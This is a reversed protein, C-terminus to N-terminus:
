EKQSFRNASTNKVFPNTRFKPTGQRNTKYWPSAHKSNFPQTTKDEDGFHYEKDMGEGEEDKDYMRISEEAEWEDEEEEGEEDEYVEEEENNYAYNSDWNDEDYDEKDIGGYGTKEIETEEGEDEEKRAELKHNESFWDYSSRNAAFKAVEAASDEDLIYKRDKDKSREKLREREKKIKEAGEEKKKQEEAERRKIGLAELEDQTLPRWKGVSLDGLHLPGTAVRKIEVARNNVVALMRRLQHYRGEFLTIRVLKEM